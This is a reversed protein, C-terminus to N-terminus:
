GKLAEASSIIEIVEKTISAQRLKNRLLILQGILEKANDNAMRMAIARASHESCFSDLLIRRIKALVMQPIIQTVVHNLNPEVIYDLPQANTEPPEILKEVQPQWKASSIYHTYILYIEIDEKIYRSLLQDTIVRAKEHSFRGFFDTFGHQILFNNKRFYNQAKKGIPFVEVDSLNTQRIFTHAFDIIRNNYNGCLGTDSSVVVFLGKAPMQRVSLLPHIKEKQQTSIKTLLEELKIAYDKAFSLPGEVRKLKTVSVMEMARMIKKTNEVSQIRSKLQRLSPPM